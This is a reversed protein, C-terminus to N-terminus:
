LTSVDDEPAETALRNNSKLKRCMMFKCGKDLAKTNGLVLLTMKRKNIRERERERERERLAKLADRGM